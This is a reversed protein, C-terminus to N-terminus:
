GRARVRAPVPGPQNAEPRRRVRVKVETIVGFVGESGLVFAQSVTVLWGADPRCLRGTAEQSAITPSLSVLIGATRSRTDRLAVFEIGDQELLAIVDRTRV